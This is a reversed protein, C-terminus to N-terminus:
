IVQSFKSKRYDAYGMFIKRLVKFFSGSFLLNNFVMKGVQKNRLKFEEPLIQKYKKRVYLYNRVMFYVREPSHLTRKRKNFVGMYGAEVPKGLSHNLVIGQLMVVKWGYQQVRYCYEHDVEDIFLKEEFGNVKDWMSLRIFSGSTIVANVNKFIGKDPAEGEQKTHTIGVVAIDNNNLRVIQDIYSNFDNGSFFSDQDMTLLWQCGRKFAMAAAKNLSKGIGENTGNHVYEFPIDHGLGEEIARLNSLKSNDIIYLEKIGKCYSKINNNVEAIEPNYLIVVVAIDSM